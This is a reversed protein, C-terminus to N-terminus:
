IIFRKVDVISILLMLGLLFVMSAGVIQEERRRVLPRKLVKRFFMTLALRGGDLAPIPLANMIALTLSIIAIIMLVFRIGYTAGEKLVFFVGIPGAVSDSATATDGVFLSSVARWLGQLTVKTYQISLGVGTVPASWTSRQMVFDTSAVGLYGKPTECVEDVNTQAKCSDYTNRSTTVELEDRFRASVSVDRGDRKLEINATQGAHLPTANMLDQNSGITNGQISVIHDGVLVGATSAPSEEAVFSVIARSDIVETDSAVTFQQEDIVPLAPLLRPIGVLALVTFLLVAFLYNVIVGALIIKAKVWLSQSGYTNKGTADDHEGKLKVFGGLPLWNVSYYSRFIGRGIVKGYARPPFGVGFEEVDVGNRKAALFHGYEHIVVLLLFMLLGFILLIM